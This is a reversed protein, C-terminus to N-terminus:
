TKMPVCIAEPLPDIKILRYSTSVVMLTLHTHTSSKSPELCAYLIRVVVQTTSIIYVHLPRGRGFFDTSAVRESSRQELEADNTECSSHLLFVACCPVFCDIVLRMYIHTQIFCLHM